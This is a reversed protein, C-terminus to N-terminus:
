SITKRIAMTQKAIPNISQVMSPVLLPLRAARDETEESVMYEREVSPAM